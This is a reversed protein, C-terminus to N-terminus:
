TRRKASSDRPVVLTEVSKFSLLDVAPASTWEAPTWFHRCGKTEAKLIIWSNEFPNIARGTRVRECHASPQM